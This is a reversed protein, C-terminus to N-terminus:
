MYTAEDPTASLRQFVETTGPLSKWVEWATKNGVSNLSSVTKCRSIAHMSPLVSYYDNDLESAIAYTGIYWFHAGHGFALWIECDEKSIATVIALLLIDMDTAHMM